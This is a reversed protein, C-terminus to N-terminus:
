DGHVWEKWIDTLTKQTEVSIYADSFEDLISARARDICEDFRERMEDAEIDARMEVVVMFVQRGQTM